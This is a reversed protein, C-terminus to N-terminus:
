TPECCTRAPRRHARRQLNIGAFAIASGDPAFRPYSIAAMDADSVIEREVGGELPRTWLTDGLALSKVYTITRGDPSLAPYRGGELLPRRGSGDANVQDCRIAPAGRVTIGVVEFVLSQGDPAWSPAGLLVSPADRSVLVSPRGIEPAVTVTMLDSGSGGAGSTFLAYVLRTGDPSLAVDFVFEGDGASLM